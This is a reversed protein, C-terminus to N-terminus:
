GRQGKLFLSLQRAKSKIKRLASKEIQRIRGETLDYLKGIEELSTRRLRKLLITKEKGSLDPAKRIYFRFYKLTQNSRM